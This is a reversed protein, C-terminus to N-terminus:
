GDVDGTPAPRSPGVGVDKHEDFNGGGDIGDAGVSYILWGADTKQIILPKGSFPDITAEKPLSLEDLGTAERDNAEAFRQLDSYVRLSRVRATDRNGAIFVEELAPRLLDALAGHGTSGNPKGGKAFHTKIEPWPKDAILLLEDYVDFPALYFRKPVWGFLWVLVRPAPECGEPGCMGSTQDISASTSSARETILVDSIKTPSESRVLEADLQNRLELPIPGAMLAEHIGDVTVGRIAYTVLQAVLTPEAEHLKALRLVEMWREIALDPRREGILTLARWRVLRAIARIRTIRGDLNSDIFDHFGLSFDATSAYKPCAAAASIAAELDAYRDLIDRMAALQEASPAEGSKLEEYSNGLPTKSEWRYQEKAFEDLILALDDLHSAANIGAPIPQPKLDAISAPAGEARIAAIKANFQSNVRWSFFGNVLLLAGLLIGAGIGWRKVTRKAPWIRMRNVKM